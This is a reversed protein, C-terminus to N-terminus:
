RKCKNVKIVYGKSTYTAEDGCLASMFEKATKIGKMEFNANKVLERFKRENNSIEYYRCCGHAVLANTRYQEGFKKAFIECYKIVKETKERDFKAYGKEFVMPRHANTGVGLYVLITIPFNTTNHVEMLEVCINHHVNEKKSRLKREAEGQILQLLSKKKEEM